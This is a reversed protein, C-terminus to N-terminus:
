NVLRQHCGLLDACGPLSEAEARARLRLALRRLVPCFRSVPCLGALRRRVLPRVRVGMAGLWTLSHLV